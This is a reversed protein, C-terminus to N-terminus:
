LVAFPTRGICGVPSNILLRAHSWKGMVHPDVCGAHYQMLCVLICLCLNVARKPHQCSSPQLVLDPYFAAVGSPMGKVSQSVALTILGIVM